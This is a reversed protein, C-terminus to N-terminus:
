VKFRNIQKNLTHAQEEMTHALKDVREMTAVQEQIAANVEETGASTEEAIAAVEQSMRVTDQISQLQQDVLSTIMAIESAVVNVSGSMQEITANTTAGKAAEKKAYTVNDNIKEVVLNVDEQIAEILGSIRQVAQASQDALKRIEEAVVAFGRGHEGARAAEISANLALLNTQEAIEGVLTIITEVQLANQKLHDVDKLSHEQDDALKQIGQVLQYVVKKSEDLTGLMETSREKSQEAKDQVKRALGTAVEVAEATSQIAEASSEAGKSIENISGGILTSHQTAAHSAEKMQIVTENTSEFHRDINHVMKNLNQLMTSVAIALSRIEDDSKPIDVEQKLNGNAAESAIKELTEMPKTIVGAALFALVGSWFIGFLLILIIYWELQIVWFNQVYDYLVYIFLASFTYTIIALITTFIMLKFRLGFRYKKDM